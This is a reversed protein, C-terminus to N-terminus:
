GNPKAGLTPLIQPKIGVNTKRRYYVALISFVISLGNAVDVLGNVLQAQTGPDINHGTVALIGAVASILASWITRSAWWHIDTDPTDTM